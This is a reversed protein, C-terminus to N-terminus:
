PNLPDKSLLASVHWVTPPTAGTRIRVRTNPGLFPVRVQTPTSATIAQGTGAPTGNFVRWSGGVRPKDEVYLTVAQDFFLSATLGKADQYDSTLTSDYLIADASAGPNAPADLPYNCRDSM